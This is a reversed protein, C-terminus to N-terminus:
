LLQIVRKLIEGKGLNTFMRVVDNQVIMMKWRTGALIKENGAQIRAKADTVSHLTFGHYRAPMQKFIWQLAKSAKRLAKRAPVKAYSNLIRTKKELAKMKAMAATGPVDGEGWPAIRTLGCAEYNTKMEEMIQEETKNVEVYYETNLMGEDVRGMHPIPCEVWMTKGGKDVPGITLGKMEIKAKMVKSLAVRQEEGGEKKGLMQDLEAILKDTKAYGWPAMAIRLTVEGEGEEEELVHERREGKGFGARAAEQRLEDWEEIESRGLVQIRM